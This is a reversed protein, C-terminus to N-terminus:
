SKLECPQCKGNEDCHDDVWHICDFDEPRECEDMGMSYCCPEVTPDAPGTIYLTLHQNDFVKPIENMRIKLKGWRMWELLGSNQERAIYGIFTKKHFVKIANKDHINTPDAELHFCHKNWWRLHKELYEGCQAYFMGRLIYIRTQKM